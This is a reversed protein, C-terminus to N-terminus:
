VLPCSSIADFDYGRYSEMLDVIEKATKKSYENRPDTGYSDKSAHHIWKLCLRTFSQQLTRHERGMLVCFEPMEHSSGNVYDRMTKVALETRQKQTMNISMQSEVEMTLHNQPM